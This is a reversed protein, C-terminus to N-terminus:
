LALRSKTENKNLRVHVTCIYRKVQEDTGDLVTILLALADWTGQIYKKYTYAESLSREVTTM